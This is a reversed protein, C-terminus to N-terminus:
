TPGRSTGAISPSPSCFIRPSRKRSTSTPSARCDTGRRIRISRSCWCRGDPTRILDVGAYDAGIAAADGAALRAMERMPSRPAPRRAGQHVNTIWNGHRAADHRRRHPRTVLVRWDEFGDDPPPVYDQMYYVNDVAEPPPLDARDDIRLRRQGPQRVAAEVGAPAGRGGHLAIARRRLKRGRAHAADPPRSTSCFRRRRNTSAASSPAPMTGSGCAARACRTCSASAFRSRSSRAPRSRACSRRRGAARRRLGSHRPRARAAHRVRLAAAVYSSTPAARTAAGRRACAGRMGIAAGDEILASACRWRGAPRPWPILPLECRRHGSRAQRCPVLRRYRPELRHGRGPQVADADIKYFDGNVDAFIEAFPKGYASSTSRCGDALKKRRTTPAACSCSSAAAM